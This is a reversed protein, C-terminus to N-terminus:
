VACSAAAGTTMRATVIGPPSAATRRHYAGAALPPPPPPPPKPHAPPERVNPPPLPAPAGRSTEGTCNRARSLDGCLRGTGGPNPRVFLFRVCGVVFSPSRIVTGASMCSSIACCLLSFPLLCIPCPAGPAGPVHMPPRPRRLSTDRPPHRHTAPWAASACGPRLRVPGSGKSGVRTASGRRHSFRPVDTALCRPACGGAMGVHLSYVPVSRHLCVPSYTPLLPFLSRGAAGWPPCSVCGAVRAPSVLVAGPM